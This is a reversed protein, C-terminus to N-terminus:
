KNNRMDVFPTVDGGQITPVQSGGAEWAETRRLELLSGTLSESIMKNAKAEAEAKMLTANAEAEANQQIRKNRETNEINAQEQEAIKKDILKQNEIAQREAEIKDQELKQQADVKAQIAATTDPDPVVNTLAFREVVIGDIALDEQLAQLIKGNIEPLKQGYIDLVDYQSTVTNAVEKIRARIYVDQIHSPSQGRWKSFVHSLMEGDFRYSLEADVTVPKGGKSIVDFSDDDKSGQKVDKSLYMTETSVPYTIVKKMPTVFHWGQGITEGTMGGSVSYVIGAYGPDVKEICMSGGVVGGAIVVGLVLSGLTKKSM